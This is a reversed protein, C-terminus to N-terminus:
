FHIKWDTGIHFYIQNLTTYNAGAHYMADSKTKLTFQIGGGIWNNTGGADLGLYVQNKPNISTTKNFENVTLDFILRRNRLKNQEITEQIVMKGKIKSTDGDYKVTDDYYRSALYDAVIGASDVYILKEKSDLWATDQKRITDRKGNRWIITPIPYSDITDHVRTTVTEIKSIVPNIPCNNKGGCMRMFFIVVLACGFLIWPVPIKM